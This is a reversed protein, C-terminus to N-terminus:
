VKEFRTQLGALEKATLITHCMIWWNTKNNGWEVPANCKTHEDLKYVSKGVNKLSANIIENKLKDQSDLTDSALNDQGYGTGHLTTELVHIDNEEKHKFWFPSDYIDADAAIPEKKKRACSKFYAQMFAASASESAIHMAQSENLIAQIMTKPMATNCTMTARQKDHLYTNAPQCQTFADMQGDRQANIIQAALLEKEHPLQANKPDFFDDTQAWITTELQIAEDEPKSTRDFHIFPPYARHCTGDSEIPYVRSDHAKNRCAALFGKMIKYSITETPCLHNNKAKPNSPSYDQPRGIRWKATAEDYHIQDSCRVTNQLDLSCFVTGYANCVIAHNFLLDEPEPQYPFDNSYSVLPSIGILLLLHYLKM